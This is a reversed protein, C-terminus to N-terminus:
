PRCIKDVTDYWKSSCNTSYIVLHPQGDSTGTTVTTIDAGTVSVLPSDPIHEWLYPAHVHGGQNQIRTITGGTNMNYAAGNAHITGGSSAALAVVNAGTNSIVDIGTGHIHIEGGGESRAAAVGGAQTAGDIFTRLVSGYVHVIGRDRANVTGGSAPYAGVPVTNSIESGFFWTEDCRESYGTAISVAATNVIRSSFWYHSGRVPGCADSYWAQGASHVEVRTWTSTGGGDWKIGGYVDNKVGLDAFNLNTCSDFTLSRFTTEEAGAGRFTTHSWAGNCEIVVGAYLGPGMDVLLPASASPKRTNGIWTILPGVGTFCNDLTLGADTCNGKRVKVVPANNDIVAFANSSFVILSAIISFARLSKM